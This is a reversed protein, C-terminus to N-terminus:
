FTYRISLAFGEPWFDSYGIIHVAPKWDLSINIPIESINYEMGLIGDLGIVSYSTGATGWGTKNSDYFGIHAGGGYYWNLRDVDFANAHIEYLGTIGLGSWRTELLGELAARDSVFHKFTIGSFLGGRLGIANKYDQAEAASFMVLVLTLGILLKKM